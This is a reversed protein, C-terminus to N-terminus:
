MFEITDVFKDFNVRKENEINVRCHIIYYGGDFPIYYICSNDPYESSVCRQRFATCEIGDIDVTYRSYEFVDSGYSELLSQCNREAAEIALGIDTGYFVFFIEADINDNHFYGSNDFDDVFGSPLEYKMEATEVTNGIVVQGNFDIYETIYNGSDDKQKKGNENLTYVQLKDNDNIVIRDEDNRVVVYSNGDEATFMDDSATNCSSFCTLVVILSLVCIFLKKM